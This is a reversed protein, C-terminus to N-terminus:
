FPLMPWTWLQSIVQGMLSGECPHRSVEHNELFQVDAHPLCLKAGTDTLRLQRSSAHNSTVIFIHPASQCAASPGPQAGSSYTM